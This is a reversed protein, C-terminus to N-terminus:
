TQRGTLEDLTGFRYGQARCAHIIDGLIAANTASTPHLLIVAGNHLHDMIKSKAYEPSPQKANDWDAYALSWFVTRYGLESLWKMSQESFKGEPPRFYKPMERGTKSQYLAELACLESQLAEKSEFRTIDRHKATHNAVIHGDEIMRCVLETNNEILHDLVFFAGPVKEAKLVELIKAVNGNEYGADFTLYIVKEESQDGHAHDLYYGNYEEVWRLNADAIPQRHEKNRVCYWNYSINQASASITALCMLMALIATWLTRKKMRKDGGLITQAGFFFIFM